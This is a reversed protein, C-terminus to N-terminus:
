IRAPVKSRKLSKLKKIEEVLLIRSFDLLILLWQDLKCVGQIYQSKLGAVVIDPPPKISDVPVNLVKTVRDVIFGTVRGEVALIVIWIDTDLNAPQVLKLRKRLDIVPIISGRLNVVGEIFDPANPIPTIPTERIIERVMLIDVGFLEKGIMFGVLQMLREKEEQDTDQNLYLEDM